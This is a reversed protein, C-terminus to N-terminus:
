TLPSYWDDEPDDYLADQESESPMWGYRARKREANARARKDDRHRRIAEEPIAPKNNM